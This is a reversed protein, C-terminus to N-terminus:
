VKVLNYIVACAVVAMIITFWTANRFMLRLVWCVCQICISLIGLVLMGGYYGIIGGLVAALIAVFFGEAIWTHIVIIIYFIVIAAALAYAIYLGINEANDAFWFGIDSIFDDYNAWFGTRRSRSSTHRLSTLPEPRYNRNKIRGYKDFEVMREGIQTLFM